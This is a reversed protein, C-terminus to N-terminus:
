RQLENEFQQGKLKVKVKNNTEKVLVQIKKQIKNNNYKCHNNTKNNNCSLNM